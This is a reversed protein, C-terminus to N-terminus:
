PVSMNLGIDFTRLNKLSNEKGSNQYIENIISKIIWNISFM